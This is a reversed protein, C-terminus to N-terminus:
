ATSPYLILGLGLLVVPDLGCIGTMIAFIQSYNERERERDRDRERVRHTHIHKNTYDGM